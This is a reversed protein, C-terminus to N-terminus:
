LRGFGVGGTDFIDVATSRWGAAILGEQKNEVTGYGGHGM